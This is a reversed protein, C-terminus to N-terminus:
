VKAYGLEKLEAPTFPRKKGKQWRHRRGDHSPSTEFECIPCPGGKAVRKKATTGEQTLHYKFGLNNLDEIAAKARQMAEAKADDLLKTREEDLEKIRTVASKEAM